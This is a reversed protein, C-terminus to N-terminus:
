YDEAYNQPGFCAYRDEEDWKDPEALEQGCWNYLQGCECCENTFGNLYVIEGCDCIVFSANYLDDSGCKPCERIHHETVGQSECDRCYFENQLVKM